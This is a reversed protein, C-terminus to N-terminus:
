KKQGKLRYSPYIWGLLYAIPLLLLIQWSIWFSPIMCILQILTFLVVIKQLLHKLAQLKADETVPYIKAMTQYEFSKQLSLLQFILLYDIIAVIVVVAWINHVFIILILSLILLRLSLTFYEGSRLFTRLYLFSFASEGKKPLLFDLYKRRRARSEIGKVNTFLAYIKLISTQRIEEYHILAEWDLNGAPLFSRLRLIFSAFKIVLLIVFWLVLMLANFKVAPSAIVTLALIIVAPFLMSRLRATYLEKKLAEEKALLFTSDPAEMFSAVKGPVLAVISVVVVILARFQWNLTNHQLFQAYQVSLTALMILLFLMFHDNFVYRLYKLNQTYYKRRRKAFIEKM